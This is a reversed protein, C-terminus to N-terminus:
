KKALWQSCVTESASKRNKNYKFGDPKDLLLGSKKIRKWVESHFTSM